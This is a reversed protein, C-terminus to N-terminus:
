RFAYSQKRKEALAQQMAQCRTLWLDEYDKASLVRNELDAIRTIGAELCWRVCIGYAEWDLPDDDLVTPVRDLGACHAAFARTHGDTMVWRGDLRKIPIPPIEQLISFDIRDQLHTLKERSIFLQSPQLRYLPKILFPHAAM